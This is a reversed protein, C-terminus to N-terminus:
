LSLGFDTWRSNKLSNKLVGFPKWVEIRKFFKPSDGFDKWRISKLSINLFGLPKWDQIKKLIKPSMQLHNKLWIWLPDKLSFIKGKGFVTGYKHEWILITDSNIARIGIVNTTTAIAIASRRRLSPTPHQQSENTTRERPSHINALTARLLVYIHM